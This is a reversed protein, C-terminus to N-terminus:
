ARDAICPRFSFSIVALAFPSSGLRRHPRFVGDDSYTQCQKRIELALTGGRPKCQKWFNSHLATCPSALLILYKHM